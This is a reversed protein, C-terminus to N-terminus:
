IPAIAAMARKPMHPLSSRHSRDRVNGEDIHFRFGMNATLRPRRITAHIAKNRVRRFIPVAHDDLPKIGNLTYARLFLKNTFGNLSQQTCFQKKADRM